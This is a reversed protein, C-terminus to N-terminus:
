RFNQQNADLLGQYVRNMDRLNTVSQFLELTANTLSEVLTQIEESYKQVHNSLLNTYIRKLQSDSPQVVGINMFKSQLRRSIPQRGGGPPCMAAVIQMGKLYKLQCKERDYWSETEIWQRLLELPPQSGFTDRQPMNFDDIFTVLRKGGIPFFTGKTRV